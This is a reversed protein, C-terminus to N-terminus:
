KSCVIAFNRFFIKYGGDNWLGMLEQNTYYRNGTYEPKEVITKRPNGADKEQMSDYIMFGNEDFGIVTVYHLIHHIKILLIVPKQEHIQNKLFAIKEEDSKNKLILSKSKIGNDHLLKEVGQPLTLNKIIRFETEAALVEPDKKEGTLINIVAMVSYPGCNNITQRYFIDNSMKLRLVKEEPETQKELHLPFARGFTLIIMICLLLLLLSIILIRSKTKM